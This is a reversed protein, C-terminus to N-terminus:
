RENYIKYQTGMPLYKLYAELDDEITKRAETNTEKEEILLIKGTIVENLFVLIAEVDTSGGYQRLQDGHTHWDSGLLGLIVDNDDLSAVELEGFDAPLPIRLKEEEVRFSISAGELLRSLEQFMQNM